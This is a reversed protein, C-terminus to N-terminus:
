ADGERTVLRLEFDRYRRTLATRLALISVPISAVFSAVAGLPAAADARGLKSGLTAGALGIALSLAVSMLWYRWMSAWWIALLRRADLEDM